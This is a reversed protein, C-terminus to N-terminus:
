QTYLDLEKFLLSYVNESVHLQKQQKIKIYLYFLYPFLIVSIMSVECSANLIHDTVFCNMIVLVAAKESLVM